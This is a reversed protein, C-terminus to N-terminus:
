PAYAITSVARRLATADTLSRDPHVRNTLLAVVIGADRDVLLSTGVFGTHGRAGGGAEGMWSRQGIRLGLSQGYGLRDEVVEAREGLLRPLQDQWLLASASPGLVGPLGSALVSGLRALDAAPAFLGANGATGGLACATEDHVVGHVMGRGLEPQFETPATLAPDPSFTTRELRLPALVREHVITKWPLGTAAEAVAMATIYGLCSYVKDSGPPVDLPLTLIDDLLAARDPTVWHPHETRLGRVSHQLTRAHVPPLGATHSLLHALTVGSRSSSRFSPLWEGIGVDLSVVGADALSLLAISTFVKSVSALDYVTDATVPERSGPVIADGSDDHSAVHGAAVTVAPIGPVVVTCVAGPAVGETVAQELVAGLRSRLSSDGDTM